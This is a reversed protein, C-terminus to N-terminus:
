YYRFRVKIRKLNILYAKELSRRVDGRGITKICSHVVLEKTYTILNPLGERENSVRTDVRTEQGGRFFLITLHWTVVRKETKTYAEEAWM